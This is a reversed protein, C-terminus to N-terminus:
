VRKAKAAARVALFHGRSTHEQVMSPAMPVLLNVLLTLYFGPQSLEPPVPDWLGLRPLLLIQVLLVITHMFFRFLCSRFLMILGYNGWLEGFTVSCLTQWRMLYRAPHFFMRTMVPYFNHKYPHAFPTDLWRLYGASTLWCHVFTLPRLCCSVTICAFTAESVNFDARGKYWVMLLDVISYAIGIFSAAKEGGGGFM